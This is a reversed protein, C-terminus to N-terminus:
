AKPLVPSFSPLTFSLLIMSEVVRRTRELEESGVDCILELYADDETMELDDLRM